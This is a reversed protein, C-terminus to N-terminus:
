VRWFRAASAANLYLTFVLCCKKLFLLAKGLKFFNIILLGEHQLSNHILARHGFKEIGLSELDQLTLLRLAQETVGEQYFISAYSTVNEASFGLNSLWQTM